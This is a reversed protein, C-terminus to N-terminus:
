GCCDLHERINALVDRQQNRWTHGHARSWCREVVGSPCPSRQSLFSLARPKEPGTSQLVLATLMHVWDSIAKLSQNYMQGQILSRLPPPNLSLRYGITLSTSSCFSCSVLQPCTTACGGMLQNPLSVGLARLCNALAFPRSPDLAWLLPTLTWSEPHFLLPAFPLIFSCSSVEAPCADM